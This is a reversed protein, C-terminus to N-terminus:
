EDILFDEYSDSNAKDIKYEGEKVKSIIVSDFELEELIEITALQGESLNLVRRLLWESLAKNPNTMLAKSNEQCVKANFTEGSPVTLNFEQDRKPFFNPYLQHIIIPIPIYVEGFDRKRGGANWQNLGSKEYVFKQKDKYGYLPLIVYNEGKILLDKAVSLDKHEEFLELLLTYPDEVIEIPIKFINNPVEFKRFLTSKSFNFSYYNKGDEFQIGASSEKVSNINNIDILDYDTEYLFLENKKRAVVHYLSNQTNYLRQALEIRENRFESLKVALEKEKLSKLQYSLKNFEAIKETSNNKECIFTKLGVGISNFKADFASDGRSLNEADFSKCFINEAARYYLYPVQSESFLGSLKSVASLLKIYNGKNEIDIEAFSKM